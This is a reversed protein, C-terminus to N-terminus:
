LQRWEGENDQPFKVPLESTAPCGNLVKTAHFGAKIM